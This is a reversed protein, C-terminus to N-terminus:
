LQNCFHRQDSYIRIMGLIVAMAIVLAGEVYPLMRSQKM